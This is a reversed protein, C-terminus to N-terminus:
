WRGLVVLRSPRLTGAPRLHKSAESSLCECVFYHVSNNRMVTEDETEPEFILHKGNRAMKDVLDWARTCSLSLDMVRKDEDPPSLGKMYQFITVTENTPFDDPRTVVLLDGGEEHTNFFTIEPAANTTLLCEEDSTYRHREQPPPRPPLSAASPKSRKANRQLVPAEQSDEADDATAEQHRSRKKNQPHRRCDSEQPLLECEYEGAKM